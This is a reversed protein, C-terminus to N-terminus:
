TKVKWVKEIASLKDPGSAAEKIEAEKAALDNRAQLIDLADKEVIKNRATIADEKAAVEAKTVKDKEAQAKAGKFAEDTQAALEPNIVGILKVLLATLWGKILSFM